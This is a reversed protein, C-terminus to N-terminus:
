LRDGPNLSPPIEHLVRKARDIKEELPEIAAYCIEYLRSHKPFHLCDSEHTKNLDCEAIYGYILDALQM